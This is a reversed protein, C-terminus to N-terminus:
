IVIPKGPSELTRIGWDSLCSMPRPPNTIPHECAYPPPRSIPSEQNKVYGADDSIGTHCEHGAHLDWKERACVLNMDHYSDGWQHKQLQEIEKHRKLADILRNGIPITRKSYENKPNKIRYEGGIYELSTCVYITRKEIDVNDWTLALCEGQRAGTWASLIIPIGWPNDVAAALVKNLEVQSLIEMEKHSVKPADAYKAPNDKIIRKRVAWNLGQNLVVHYHHITQQSLGGKGRQKGSKKLEKYFADIELPELKEVEITGLKSILSHNIIATYRAKTKNATQESVYHELYQTLVDGITLKTPKTYTGQNVAAVINKLAKKAQAETGKFTRYHYNKESKM